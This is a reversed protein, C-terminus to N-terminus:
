VPGPVTARNKQPSLLISQNCIIPSLIGRPIEEDTENKAFDFNGNVIEEVYPTVALDQHSTLFRMHSKQLAEEPM